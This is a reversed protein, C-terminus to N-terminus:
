AEKRRSDECLGKYGSKVSYEGNRELSWHLFDPQPTACPPIVKIKQAEFPLFIWRDGSYEGLEIGWSIHDEGDERLNYFQKDRM